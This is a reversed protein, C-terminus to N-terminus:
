GLKVIQEPVYPQVDVIEVEFTLDKGALPHNFDVTVYQEDWSDIVGPLDGSKDEFNVVLGAELTMSDDFLERKIKQVNDERHPGFAEAPSLFVSRQDGKKLGVIAKEFGDLLSGDGFVFTPPNSGLTSDLVQGDMLRVTFHLTIERDREICYLTESQSDSQAM